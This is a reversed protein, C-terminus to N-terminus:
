AGSSGSGESLLSTDLQNQSTVGATCKTTPAPATTTFSSSNCRVRMDRELPNLMASASSPLSMFLFDWPLKEAEASYSELEALDKSGWKYYLDVCFDHIEMCDEGDRFTSHLRGLSPVIRQKKYHFFLFTMADNMLKWMDIHFGLYHLEIAM